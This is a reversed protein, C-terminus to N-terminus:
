VPSVGKNISRILAVAFVAELALLVIIVVIGIIGFKQNNHVDDLIKDYCGMTNTKNQDFGAPQKVACTLDNAKLFSHVCCAPTVDIHFTRGSLNYNTWPATHDFDDPGAMGCCNLSYSLINILLSFVDTNKPGKYDDHVQKKFENKIKSHMPSDRNFFLGGVTAVSLILILVLVCFLGLFIRLKYCAGCCALFSVGFLVVGFILVALGLEDLLPVTNLDSSGDPLKFHTIDKVGDFLFQMLVGPFFKLIVGVVVLVLSLLVFIINLLVLVCQGLSSFFGM